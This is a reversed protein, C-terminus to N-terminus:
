PLSRAVRFGVSVYRLARDNRSRYGSRVSAPSVVNWAGGRAVYQDCEADGRVASGDTPAGDYSDKYCDATWQWVNGLMDYLGFGNPKFSGVPATEKGDWPSGCGGCNANNIGIKEGWYRATGTGARAAYEWEAESPLRYHKGTKASLWRLYRQADDWSVNIVPRTGRGWGQDDPLYAACGGDRVCFDWESFTVAFKGIEFGHVKVERQGAEPEFRGGEGDPFGMTFTGGAIRVMVPMAANAEIDRKARWQMDAEALQAAEARKAKDMRELEMAERRLQEAERRDEDNRDAKLRIETLEGGVMRGVMEDGDLNVFLALPTGAAAQGAGAFVTLYNESRTIECPESRAEDATKRVITCSVRGRGEHGFHVTLAPAAGGSSSVWTGLLDANGAGNTGAAPEVSRGAQDAAIVSAAPLLIGALLCLLESKCYKSQRRKQMEVERFDTVWQVSL